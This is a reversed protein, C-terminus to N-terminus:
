NDCVNRNWFLVINSRETRKGCDQSVTFKKQKRRKENKKKKVFMGKCCVLQLKHEIEFDFRSRTWSLELMTVRKVSRVIVWACVISLSRCAISLRVSEFICWRIGDNLLRTDCMQGVSSISPFTIRRFLWFNPPEPGSGFSEFSSSWALGIM